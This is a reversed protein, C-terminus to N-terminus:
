KGCIVQMCTSLFGIMLDNTSDARKLYNQGRGFSLMVIRNSAPNIESRDLNLFVADDPNIRFVERDNETISACRCM